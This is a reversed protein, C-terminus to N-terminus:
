FYCVILWLLNVENNVDDNRWYSFTVPISQVRHTHTHTHIKMPKRNQRRQKEKFNHVIIHQKVIGYSWTIFNRNTWYKWHAWCAEPGHGWPLSWHWSPLPSPCQSPTSPEAAPCSCWLGRGGGQLGAAPSGKLMTGSGSLTASRQGWMWWGHPGGRTIPTVTPLTVRWSGTILLSGQFFSRPQAGCCGSSGM